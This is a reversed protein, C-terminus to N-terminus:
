FELVDEGAPYHVLEVRIGDPDTCVLWSGQMHPYNFSTRTNELVEGGHELIRSAVADVDDVWIALHTLGLANMPRKQGSGLHGLKGYWMLELTVHDRRILRSHLDIDGDLELIRSWASGRFRWERLVDFGLGDCWFRLSKELDSVCIGIHGVAKIEMM